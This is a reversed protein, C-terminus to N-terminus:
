FAIFCNVTITDATSTQFWFNSGERKCRITVSADPRTEALYNIDVAKVGREMVSLPILNEFWRLYEANNVHQARDISSFPVTFAHVIELNTPMKIKTPSIALAAEPHTQYHKIEETCRCVRRKTLDMIVWHSTGAILVENMPSLIQFDRTAILGDSGQSWTRLRIPDYLKPLRAVVRYCVKSLVWVKNNVVLDNYGCGVDNSHLEAIEQFLQAIAPLSLRCFRDGLHTYVEFPKEYYM